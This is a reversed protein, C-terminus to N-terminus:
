SGSSTKLRSSVLILKWTLLPLMVIPCLSSFVSALTAVQVSGPLLAYQLQELQPLNKESSAPLLSIVSFLQTIGAVCVNTFVSALTAVQVSSPM